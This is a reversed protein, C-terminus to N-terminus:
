RLQQAQGRAQGQRVRGEGEAPFPAAGRPARQEGRFMCVYM